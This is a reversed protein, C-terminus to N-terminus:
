PALARSPQDQETGTGGALRLCAKEIEVTQQLGGALLALTIHGQDEQQEIM